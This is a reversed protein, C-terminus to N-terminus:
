SAISKIDYILNIQNSLIVMNDGKFVRHFRAFHEPVNEILLIKKM